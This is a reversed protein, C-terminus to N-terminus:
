QSREQDEKIIQLAWSLRQHLKELDRRTSWTPLFMEGLAALELLRHFVGACGDWKRPAITAGLEAAFAQLMEPRESGTAKIEEETWSPIVLARESQPLVDALQHLSELEDSVLRTWSVRPAPETEEGLQAKMAAIMTAAMSGLTVAYREASLVSAAHGYIAAKEPINRHAMNPDNLLEQTLASLDALTYTKM